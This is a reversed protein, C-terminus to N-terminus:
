IIRSVLIFTQRRNELNREGSPIIIIILMIIIMVAKTIIVIILM